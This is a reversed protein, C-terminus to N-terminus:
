FAADSFTADATTNAANTANAAACAKASSLEFRMSDQVCRVCGWRLILMCERFCSMLLRSLWPMTAQSFAANTKTTRPTPRSPPFSPPIVGLNANEAFQTVQYGFGHGVEGGEMPSHRCADKVDAPMNMSFYADLMTPDPTDTTQLNDLETAAQTLSPM